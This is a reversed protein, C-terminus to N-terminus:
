HDCITNTVKAIHTIQMGSSPVLPNQSKGKVRTGEKATGVRGKREKGLVMEKGRLQLAAGEFGAQSNPSRQAGM